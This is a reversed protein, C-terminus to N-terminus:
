QNNHMTHDDTDIRLSLSANRYSSINETQLYTNLIAGLRGQNLAQKFPKLTSIDNDGLLVTILQTAAKIKELKSHGFNFKTGITLVTLYDENEFGRNNIYSRLESIFADCKLNIYSLSCYEGPINASYNEYETIAVFFNKLALPLRDFKNLAEHAKLLQDKPLILISVNTDPNNIEFYNMTCFLSRYHFERSNGSIVIFGDPHTISLINQM